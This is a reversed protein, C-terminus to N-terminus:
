QQLLATGCDNFTEVFVADVNDGNQSRSNYKTFTTNTGCRPFPTYATENPAPCDITTSPTAVASAHTMALFIPHHFICVKSDSNDLRTVSCLYIANQDEPKDFRVSICLAAHMRDFAFALCHSLNSCDIASREKTVRVWSVDVLKYETM